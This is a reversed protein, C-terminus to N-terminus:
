YEIRIKSFGVLVSTAVCATVQLPKKPNASSNVQLFKELAWFGAGVKLTEYWGDLKKTM